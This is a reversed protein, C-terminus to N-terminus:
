KESQFLKWKAKKMLYFWLQYEEGSINVKQTSQISRTNLVYYAKGLQQSSLVNGGLAQVQTWIEQANVRVILLFLILLLWNPNTKWSFSFNKLYDSPQNLSKKNDALM